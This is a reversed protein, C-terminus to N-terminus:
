RGAHLLGPRSYAAPPWLSVTEPAAATLVRTAAPQKPHQQRSPEDTRSDAASSENTETVLAASPGATNGGEARQPTLYPWEQGPHDTQRPAADAAIGAANLSGALAVLRVSTGRLTGAKAALRIM